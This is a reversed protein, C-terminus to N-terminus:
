PEKEGPAEVKIIPKAATTPTGCVPCESVKGPTFARTSGDLFFEYYRWAERWDMIVSLAQYVVLGIIISHVYIVSPAVCHRKESDDQDKESHWLCSYCGSENDQLFVYGNMASDSVAAFVVPIGHLFGWRSADYRSEENDVLCLLLDSDEFAEPFEQVVDQFDMSFGEITTEGTCEKALNEALSLAKNKYLQEHYFFQRNLNSLEVHDADCVKISKVGTRALNQLAHGGLGGAGICAIRAKEVKKQDWGPIRIQRDFVGKEGETESKLEKSTFRVRPISVIPGTEM